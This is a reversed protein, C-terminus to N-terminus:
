AIRANKNALAAAAISKNCRTLLRKLWGDPPNTKRKFQAIV